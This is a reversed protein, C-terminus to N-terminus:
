TVLAVSKMTDSEWDGFRVRDAVIKPQETISIRVEFLRKKSSRRQKRRKKHHRVLSLFFDGGQQADTFIWQYITEHSM